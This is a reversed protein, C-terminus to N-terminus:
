DVVRLALQSLGAGRRPRRCCTRPTVPGRVLPYGWEDLDVIEPLLEHCLGRAKCSPWDVRLSATVVRTGEDRPRCRRALHAAVEDELVDPGLPCGCRATPTPARVAGRRRPQTLQEIRAASAAGPCRRVSSRALAPLGNFCPGCRGATQGALYDVVRQYFTWPCTTRVRCTCSGPASRRVPRSCGPRRSRRGPSRGGLPDLDRPLRRGAGRGPRAAAAGGREVPHRLRGRASRAAASPVASPSSRRARSSPTGLRRYAAAGGLVLLGVQAWTEANSLLTPRGGHGSVSEPSWATVPLNPRGSMLELVARAQGAVFRDSPAHARSIRIRDAREAVAQEMARGVEPREGPLVVHVARAGLARATAVRRGPGPAPPTLALASDKASAPEGEALNVVVM